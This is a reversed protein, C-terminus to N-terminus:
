TNTDPEMIRTSVIELDQGVFLSSLYYQQEQWLLFRHHGKINIVLKNLLKGTKM